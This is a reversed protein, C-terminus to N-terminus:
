IIFQDKFQLKFDSWSINEGFGFYNDPISIIEDSILYNGSCDFWQPTLGNYSSSVTTLVTFPILYTNGVEYNRNCTGIKSYIFTIQEGIKYKQEGKLIDEIEAEVSYQKFENGSPTTYIGPIKEVIKVKLFYPTTILTIFKRSYQDELKSRVLKHFDGISPKNKDMKGFKIQERQYKIVRSLYNTYGEPDSAIAKYLLVLLDDLAQTGIVFDDFSPTYEYQLAYIQLANMYEEVEASYINKVQANINLYFILALSLPIRMKIKGKGKKKFESARIDDSISM